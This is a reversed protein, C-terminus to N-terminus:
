IGRKEKKFNKIIFSVLYITLVNAIAPVLAYFTYPEPIVSKNIICGIVNILIAVIMGCIIGEKVAYKSKLACVFPFFLMGFQLTFAFITLDFIQNTLLGVIVALFATIFIAIKTVKLVQKDDVEKINAYLDNSILVSTAFLSSSASSLIAAVLSSMFVALLFPNLLEKALIPILLESDGAFLSASIQGQNVLTIAILAIFVPILGVTWYLLGSSIMGIRATKNDKAMFSRQAIDPSPINGLAMGAWLAIYAIISKYSFEQPLINWFNEPTHSNIENIGGTLNIGIYVIIILGIMIIIMQMTDTWAVALLGGLYTFIVIVTISIIFSLITNIGFIAYMIKSIALIQVATWMIYTPIMLATAMYSTFKGYRKSYLSGVSRINLKRLPVVFFLGTLILALGAAFPDEIVGFLGEEYAAGTAGIITGGGWFTAFLTGITVFLPASRGAVLYDDTNSVKTSAIKGIAIMLSMYVVLVIILIISDM